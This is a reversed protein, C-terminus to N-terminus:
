KTGFAEYVRKILLLAQERNTNKRPMIENSDSGKMINNKYAFKIERIAWSGILNEDVFVPAADININVNEVAGTIARYLMVCIDQRTIPNNPSFSDTSTGKVIGAGFAKLISQNQTDHFTNPSLPIAEAGKLKEYLKIVLECFEERTINRNYNNMIKDTYLGYEIAKNLEELAWSSAGTLDFTATTAVANPTTVELVNSEKSFAEGIYAYVVYYYTTNPKVNKDTYTTINANLKAAEEWEGTATKYLIFGEENDSKDLWTLAIESTKEAKASLSEPANISIVAAAAAPTKIEVINSQSFVNNDKYAFVAYYYTTSPQLKKDAYTESDADLDAIMEWDGTSARYLWFGAENDSKDQWTLIIENESTANAELDEPANVEDTAASQENNEQNKNSSENSDETDATKPPITINVENSYESYTNNLTMTKPNLMGLIMARVRYYYKIGPKVTDDIYNTTDKDTSTLQTYNEGAKKREIIFNTENDSKDQWSLSVKNEPTLIITLNIPAKVEVLQELSPTLPDEKLLPLTGGPITVNPATIGPLKPKLTTDTNSNDSDPTTSQTADSSPLTPQIITRSGPITPKTITPLESANVSLCASVIMTLCILVTVGKKM